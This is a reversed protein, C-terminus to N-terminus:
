YIKEAGRAFGSWHGSLCQSYCLCAERIKSNVPEFFVAIHAEILRVRGGAKDVWVRCKQLHLNEPQRLPVTSLETRRLYRAGDNPTRQGCKQPRTITREELTVAGLFFSVVGYYFM